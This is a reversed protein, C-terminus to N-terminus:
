GVVLHIIYLSNSESFIKVNFLYNYTNELYHNITSSINNYTILQLSM